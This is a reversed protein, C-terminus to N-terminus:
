SDDNLKEKQQKIYNERADHYMLMVFLMLMGTFIWGIAILVIVAISKFIKNLTPHITKDVDAFLESHEVAFLGILVALIYTWTAALGINLLEEINMFHGFILCAIFVINCVIPILKKM